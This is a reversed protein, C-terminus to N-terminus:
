PYASTGARIRTRSQQTHGQRPHHRIPYAVPHLDGLRQRRTRPRPQRRRRAAPARRANAMDERTGPNRRPKGRATGAETFYREAEDRDGAGLRARGLAHLSQLVGRADAVERRLRLAERHHHEAAAWEQKTEAVTGLNALITSHIVRDRDAESLGELLELADGFRTEAARIDGGFYETAAVIGYCRARLSADSTSALDLASRGYRQAESFDGLYLAIDALRILVHVREASSDILAMEAEALAGDFDGRVFALESRLLRVSSDEVPLLGILKEAEGWDGLVILVGALRPGLEEISVHPRLKQYLMLATHYMGAREAQSAAQYGAKVMQDIQGAQEFHFAASAMAGNRGSWEGARAHLYRRQNAGMEAYVERQMLAHVFSVEGHPGERMLRIECAKNLAAIADKTDGEMVYTISALEDSTDLVVSAARLFHRTMEDARALRRRLIADARPLVVDGALPSGPSQTILNVAERLFFPNGGTLRFLRDVISEDALEGAASMMRVYEGVHARELPVVTLTVHGTASWEAMLDALESYDSLQEEQITAAVLVPVQRLKRFLYNLFYLTDPDAAHLDDVLLFLGANGSTAKILIRSLEEYVGRLSFSGEALKEGISALFAGIFPVADLLAPAARALTRRIQDPTRGLYAALAEKMPLLPEAGRGLCRVSIVAMGRNRAEAAAEVALRSKGVGSEGLILVAHGKGTDAVRAIHQRLLDLELQRDILPEQPSDGGAETTESSHGNRAAM